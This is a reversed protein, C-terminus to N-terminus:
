LLINWGERSQIDYLEHLGKLLNEEIFAWRDSPTYGSYRSRCISIMQPQLESTSLWRLFLKIRNLVTKDSPPAPTPTYEKYVMYYHGDEERMSIVLRPLIRFPHHPDNKYQLYAEKTIELRKEPVTSLSDDTCFYDIDIDLVCPQVARYYGLGGQRYTFLRTTSIEDVLKLRTFANVDGLTLEQEGTLMVTRQAPKRLPANYEGIFLIDNFLGYWIAPTIFDAIGLAQRTLVAAEQLSPAQSGFYANYGGAEFDPHHDVHLLTNGFPRIEGNQRALCWVYFAENHEEITYLPVPKTM